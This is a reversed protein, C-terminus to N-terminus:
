YEAGILAPARLDPHQAVVERTAELDGDQVVVAFTALREDDPSLDM